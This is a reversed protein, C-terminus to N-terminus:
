FYFGIEVDYTIGQVEVAKTFRNGNELLGGHAFFDIWNLLYNKESEQWELNEITNQIVPIAVEEPMAPVEEHYESWSPHHRAM